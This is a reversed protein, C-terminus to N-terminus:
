EKVVKVVKTSESGGIKLLYIGPKLVAGLLTKGSGNSSGKAVVAGALTAVEYTFPYPAQM